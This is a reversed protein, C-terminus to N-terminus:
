TKGFYHTLYKDYLMEAADITRPDGVAVLDAYILLPPTVGLEQEPYHFNWFRQRLELKGGPTKRLHLQQILPKQGGTIYLTERGAVLYRQLLAAATEAGALTDQPLAELNLPTIIDYRGLLLKPRLKEIYGAIWLKVLEHEDRLRTDGGITILYQQKELNTMVGAVTGLAVGAAKAIDRYPANRLEKACLLAFLVKLAAWGFPQPGEDDPERKKRRKGEILVHVGGAKIFANGATDLYQVDMERLIAGVDDTLYETILLVGTKKRRANENVERAIYHANSKNVLRKTEAVYMYRRGGHRLLLGTDTTTTGDVAEDDAVALDMGTIATAEQVATEITERNDTM